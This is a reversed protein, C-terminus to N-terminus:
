SDTSSSRAAFGRWHRLPGAAHLHYRSTWALLALLVDRMQEYAGRYIVCAMRSCGELEGIRLDRAQPIKHSLNSSCLGDARSCRRLMRTSRGRTWYSRSTRLHFGLDKLAIMRNLRPLQEARYYRYGSAANVFSPILLGIKDYHRLM